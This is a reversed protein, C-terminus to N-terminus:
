LSLVVRIRGRAAARSDHELIQRFLQLANELVQAAFSLQRRLIHLLRELLDADGQEFGVHMEPHHLLEDLADFLLGHARFHEGGEGRGLLHDADDVLLQDADQAAM